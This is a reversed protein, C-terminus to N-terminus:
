GEEAREVYSDFFRTYVDVKTEGAKLGVEEVLGCNFCKILAKGEKEHLEVMISNHQCVPCRFFASRRRRRVPLMTRRKRRGM